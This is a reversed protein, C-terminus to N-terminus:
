ALLIMAHARRRTFGAWWVFRVVAEGVVSFIKKFRGKASSQLDITRQRQRGAEEAALGGVELDVGGEVVVALAGPVPVDILKCVQLLSM